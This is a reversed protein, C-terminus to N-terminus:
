AANSKMAILWAYFLKLCCFAGNRPKKIFVRDSGYQHKGNDAFANRVLLSDGIAAAKEITRRIYMKWREAFRFDCKIKALLM